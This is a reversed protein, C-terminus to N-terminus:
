IETLAEQDKGELQSMGHERCQNKMGKERTDLGGCGLRDRMRETISAVGPKKRKEENDVARKTISKLIWRLMRM